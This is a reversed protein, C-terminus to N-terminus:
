LSPEEETETPFAGACPKFPIFFGKLLLGGSPNTM